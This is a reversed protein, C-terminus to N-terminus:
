PVPTPVPDITYYVGVELLSPDGAAQAAKMQAQRALDTAIDRISKEWHEDIVTQGIGTIAVPRM